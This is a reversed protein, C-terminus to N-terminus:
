PNAKEMYRVAERSPLTRPPIQDSRRPGRGASADPSPSMTAPSAMDPVAGAKQIMVEPRATEPRPPPNM